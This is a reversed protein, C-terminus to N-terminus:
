SETEDWEDPSFGVYGKHTVEGTVRDTFQAHHRGMLELAETRSYWDLVISGHVSRVSKILYSFGDKQLQDLDWSTAFGAFYVEGQKSVAEREKIILYKVPDFGKAIKTLEYLVEEAEIKYGAMLHSIYKKIYDYSLLRSAAQRPNAFKAKRAAQTGNGGEIIYEHCFIYQKHSKLEWKKIEAQVDKPPKKEKKKAAM